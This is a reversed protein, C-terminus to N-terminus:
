LPLLLRAFCAAALVFTFVFAEEYYIAHAPPWQKLPPWRDKAYFRQRRCPIKVGSFQLGLGYPQSQRGIEGDLATKRHRVITSFERQSVTWLSISYDFCIVLGPSIRHAV